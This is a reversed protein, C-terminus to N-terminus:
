DVCGRLTRRSGDILWRMAASTEIWAGVFPAVHYGNGGTSGISITEIWAGVFPAVSINTHVQLGQPQKLGRVWSPHSPLLKSMMGIVSTEIWAGVFPAVVDAIIRCALVRQKLGRVWSPHSEM